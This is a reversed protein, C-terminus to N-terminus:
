MLGEKGVAEIEVTFCPGLINFKFIGSIFKRLKLRRAMRLPM